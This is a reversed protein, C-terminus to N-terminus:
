LSDNNVAEGTSCYVTCAVVGQQLSLLFGQICSTELPHTSVHVPRNLVRAESECSCPLTEQQRVRPLLFALAKEESRHTSTSPTYM